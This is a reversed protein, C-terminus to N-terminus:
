PTSHPRREAVKRRGIGSVELKSASQGMFADLSTISWYDSRGIKRSPAVVRGIKRFARFTSFPMGIYCAAEKARLWEPCPTM